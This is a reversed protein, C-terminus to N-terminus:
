RWLTRPMESVAAPRTSAVFATTASTEPGKEPGSTSLSPPLATSASARTNSATPKPEYMNTCSGQCANAAAVTVPRPFPKKQGAWDVSM